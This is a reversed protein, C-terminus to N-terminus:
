LNVLLLNRGTREALRWLAPLCYECVERVNAAPAAAFPPDFTAHTTATEGCACVTM